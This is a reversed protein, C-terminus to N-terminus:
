CDFSGNIAYVEKCSKKGGYLWDVRRGDAGARETM